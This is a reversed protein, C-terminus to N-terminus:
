ADTRLAYLICGLGAVQSLQIATQFAFGQVGFGLHLVAGGAQVVMILGFGLAIFLMPRSRNRRYGRFAIVAIAVGLLFIALALSATVVQRPGLDGHVSLATRALLTGTM